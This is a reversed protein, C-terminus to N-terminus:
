DKKFSFKKSTALPTLLHSSIIVFIFSVLGFHCSKKKKKKSFSWFSLQNFM